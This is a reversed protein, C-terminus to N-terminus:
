GMRGIEKIGTELTNEKERQNSGFIFEGAMSIIKIGNGSINKESIQGIWQEKVKNWIMKGIEKLITELHITTCKEMGTKSTMKLVEKLFVAVKSFLKAKEKKKGKNGNDKTLQMTLEIFVMAMGSGM